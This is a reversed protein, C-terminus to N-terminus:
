IFVQGGKNVFPKYLFCTKLMCTVAEWWCMQPAWIIGVEDPPLCFTHCYSFRQWDQFNYKSLSTGHACRHESLFSKFSPFKIPLSTNRINTQLFFFFDTNCVSIFITISCVVAPHNIIFSNITTATIELIGRFSQNWTNSGQWEGFDLGFKIKNKKFNSYTM